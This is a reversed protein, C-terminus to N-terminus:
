SYEGVDKDKMIVNNKEGKCCLQIHGTIKGLMEEFAGWWQESMHIFNYKMTYLLINQM